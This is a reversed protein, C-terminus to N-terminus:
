GTSSVYLGRSVSLRLSCRRWRGQLWTPEVPAAGGPQRESAGAEALLARDRALHQRVQTVLHSKGMGEDGVVIGIGGRKAGLGEIATKVTDFEVERGILPAPLGYVQLHDPRRADTRRTLPRYVAVPESVGKVSIEGLPQWEFQSEVLRHTNESVLVTGSEAATEMRAALAIAEGMATDESHRRRDGVSAVIVEGTNIGVRLLLDIGERQTLEAAYRKLAQQMALGRRLRFGWRALGM